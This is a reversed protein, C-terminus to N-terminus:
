NKDNEVIMKVGEESIIDKLDGLHKGLEMIDLVKKYIEEESFSHIAESALFKRM